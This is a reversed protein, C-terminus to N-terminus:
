NNTIFELTLNIYRQKVKDEGTQASQCFPSGKQIVIGGEDCAIICPLTNAIEQAKDNAPKEADGYYWLSVSIPVKDGFFDDLVLEYTLYPYEAESPVQTQVYADIGFGSFYNYLAAAKTTMIAAM